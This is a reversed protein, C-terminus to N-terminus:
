IFKSPGSKGREEYRKIANKLREKGQKLNQEAADLATQATKLVELHEEQDTKNSLEPM